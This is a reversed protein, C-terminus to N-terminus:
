QCCVRMKGNESQSYLSQSCENEAIVLRSTMAPEMWATCKHGNSAKDKQVTFPVVPESVGVERRSFRSCCLRWINGSVHIEPGYCTGAQNFILATNVSVWQTCVLCHAGAILLIGVAFALVISSRM